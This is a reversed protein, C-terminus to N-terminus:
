PRSSSLPAQRGSAPSVAARWRCGGSCYMQVFFRDSRAESASVRVARSSSVVGMAPDDEGAAACVHQEPALGGDSELCWFWGGRAAPEVEVQVFLDGAMVPVVARGSDTADAAFSTNLPSLTSMSTGARSIFFVSVGCIALIVVWFAGLGYPGNWGLYRLWLPPSAASPRRFPLPQQQRPAPAADLRLTLLREELADLTPGLSIAQSPARLNRATHTIAVLTQEM